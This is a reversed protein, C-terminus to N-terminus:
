SSSVAVSKTDDAAVYVLPAPKAGRSGWLLGSAQRQIDDEAFADDFDMTHALRTVANVVSARTVSAVVRAGSDDAEWCEVLASVLDEVKRRGPVVIEKDVLLGRFIGAVLERDGSQKMRAENAGTRLNDTCAYGWAKLFHGISDLAKAFGARFEKALKEVTGVHRIAFLAGVAQDIIILNLCLNQWVVSHGKIAGGANDSTSVVVGARFFEGAVYHEPQVTSHFLIEFRARTGDYAVSGRAEDSTALKIAAAIQDVDFSAYGKSTAAFVSREGGTIRTRLLLTGAEPPDSDGRKDSKQWAEFNAGESAAILARQENVNHARLALPCGALYRGGCYGLRNVLQGFAHEGVRMAQPALLDFRPASTSTASDPTFADVPAFTLRGDAEMGVSANPVFIDVRDEAVVKAITDDCLTAVRPKKEWEIRKRRANEVGLGVVMTGRTYLTEAPAFGGAVAADFDGHSRAAGAADVVVGRRADNKALALPESSTTSSPSGSSTAASRSAQGTPTGLPAPAATAPSSAASGVVFAVAARRAQERAVEPTEGAGRAMYYARRATSEALSRQAATLEPESTERTTTDIMAMIRDLANDDNTAATTTSNDM